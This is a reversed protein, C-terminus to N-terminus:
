VRGGERGWSVCCLIVLRISTWPMALLLPLLAKMSGAVDAGKDVEEAEEEAAVV